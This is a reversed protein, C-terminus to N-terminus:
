ARPPGTAHGVALAAPASAAVWKARGTAYSAGPSTTPPLPNGDEAPAAAQQQVVQVPLQEGLLATWQERAKSAPHRDDVTAMAANSGAQARPFAAARWPSAATHTVATRAPQLPRGSLARRLGSAAPPLATPTAAQIPPQQAMIHPQQARHVLPPARSSLAALASALEHPDVAGTQPQPTAPPTLSQRPPTRHGSLYPSESSLSSLQGLSTPVPLQEVIIQGM